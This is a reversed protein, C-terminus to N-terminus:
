RQVERWGRERLDAFRAGSQPLAKDILAEARAPWEVGQQPITLWTTTPELVLQACLWMGRAAPHEPLHRYHPVTQDQDPDWRTRLAWAQITRAAVYDALYQEGQRRLKWALAQDERIEWSAEAAKAWDATLADARQRAVGAIELRNLVQECRAPAKQAFGCAARALAWRGPDQELLAQAKWRRPGSESGYAEQDAALAERWGHGLGGPRNRELDAVAAEAEQYARELELLPSALDEGVVAAVSAASPYLNRPARPPPLFSNGQVVVSPMQAQPMQTM